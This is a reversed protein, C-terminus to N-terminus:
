FGIEVQLLIKRPGRLDSTVEQYHSIIRIIEELIESGKV